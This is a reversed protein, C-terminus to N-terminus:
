EGGEQAAPVMGFEELGRLLSAAFWRNGQPSFHGAMNDNIWPETPEPPAATWGFLFPLGRELCYARVAAADSSLAYGGFRRFGVSTVAFRAGRAACEDALADIAAFTARREDSRVNSVLAGEEPAEFGVKRRYLGLSALLRLAIPKAVNYAASHVRLFRRLPMRARIANWNGTTFNWDDAFDNGCHVYVVISPRLREWHRRALGLAQVAGYGNVGANVVEWRGPERRELLEGLRAAFTEDDEVGMGFVYSDGLLLVRERADPDLEPGRFGLSNTHVRYRHDFGVIETDLSAGNRWQLEGDPVLYDVGHFNWNGVARVLVEMGVALLLGSIGLAVIRRGVRQAM